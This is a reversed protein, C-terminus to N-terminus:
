PRKKGQCLCFSWIEDCQVRKADIMFGHADHYRKCAAGIDELLEIVTWKAAGTLRCTAGISNGQVLCGVIRARDQTSLRNM